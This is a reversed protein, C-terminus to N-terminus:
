DKKNASLQLVKNYLGIIRNAIYDKSIEKLHGNPNIRKNYDLANILKKALDQEDFKSIYCGRINQIREKVDGVDTAVIPCGAALAEKIVNPSGELKSTFALVNAASLFYPVLSHDVPYPSILSYQIKLQNLISLAGKLLDFNKRSDIKDGLFLIYIKDLSLNLHNRATNQNIKMFKNINVGNPIVNTKHRFYFPIWKLMQTSKVIAADVRFILYQSLLINMLGKLTLFNYRDSYLGLLDNGMFSIILKERNVLSACIVGSYTWHCHVIDYRENKLIIKLENFAKIYSKIGGGRVIYHDMRLVYPQLSEYQSQIFPVVDFKKDNSSVFLISLPSKITSM